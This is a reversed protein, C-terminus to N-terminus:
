PTRILRLAKGKVDFNRRWIDDYTSVESVNPRGYLVAENGGKVRVRCNGLPRGEDLLPGAVDRPLIKWLSGLPLYIPNKESDLTAMWGGALVMEDKMMFLTPSIRGPAHIQLASRWGAAHNTVSLLYVEYNFRHRSPNSVGGAICYANSWMAAGAYALPVPLDPLSIQMGESDMIMVRKMPNGQADLGGAILMGQDCSTIAAGPFEEELAGCESSGSVDTVPELRWSEAQAFLPM